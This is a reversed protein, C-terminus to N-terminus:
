VGRSGVARVEQMSVEISRVGDPYFFAPNNNIEHEEDDGDNDHDIEYGYPNYIFCFRDYWELFTRGTYELDSQRSMCFYPYIAAKEASSMFDASTVIIPPPIMEKGEISREQNYFFWMHLLAQAFDYSYCSYLLITTQSDSNGRTDIENVARQWLPQILPEFIVDLSFDDFSSFVNSFQIGFPNGHGSIILTLDGSIGPLAEYMDNVAMGDEDRQGIAGHGVEQYIRDESTVQRAIRSFIHEGFDFLSYGEPSVMMEPNHAFHVVTSNDPIIEAECFEKYVELHNSFDNVDWESNGYTRRYSVLLSFFSTLPLDFIFRYNGRRRIFSIIETGHNSFFDEFDDRGDFIHGSQCFVSVIDSLGNFGIHMSLDLIEELSFWCSLIKAAMLIKEDNYTAFDRRIMTMIEYRQDIYANFIFAELPLRKGNQFQMSSYFLRYVQEADLTGAALQIYNDRGIGPYYVTFLWYENVAVVDDYLDLLERVSYDKFSESLEVLKFLVETDDYSLIRELIDQDLGKYDLFCIAVLYDSFSIAYDRYQMVTDIYEIFNIYWQRDDVHAYPNHYVTLFDSISTVDDELFIMLDLIDQPTAGDDCYINCLDIYEEVNFDYHYLMIFLDIIEYRSVTDPFLEEMQEALPIDEFLIFGFFDVEESLEVDSYRNDEDSRSE